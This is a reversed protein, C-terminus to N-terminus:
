WIRKDFCFQHWHEDFNKKFMFVNPSQTVDSPLANWDNIVRISGSILTVTINTSKLDM